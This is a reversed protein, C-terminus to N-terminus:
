LSSICFTSQLSISKRTLNMDPRAFSRAANSTHSQIFQMAAVVSQSVESSPIASTRRNKILFVSKATTASKNRRAPRALDLSVRQRHSLTSTSTQPSRSNLLYAVLNRFSSSVSDRPSVAITIIRWRRLSSRRRWQWSQRSM